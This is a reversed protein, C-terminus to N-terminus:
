LRAQGTQKSKLLGSVWAYILIAAIILVIYMTGSDFNNSSLLVGSNFISHAVISSMLNKTIIYLVTTIVALLFLVLYMSQSAGQAIYTPVHMLMWFFAALIFAIVMNKFIKMFAFPALVRALAEEAPAVVMFQSIINGSLAWQAPIVSATTLAAINTFDPVLISATEPTFKMIVSGFFLAAMGGIIGLPIALGMNKDSWGVAELDEDVSGGKKDASAGLTFIFALPIAFIIYMPDKFALAFLVVTLGSLILYGTTASGSDSEGKRSVM